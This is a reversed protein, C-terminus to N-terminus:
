EWGDVLVFEEFEKNNSNTHWGLLHYVLCFLSLHEKILLLLQNPRPSAPNRFITVLATLCDALSEVTLCVVVEYIKYLYALKLNSNSSETM